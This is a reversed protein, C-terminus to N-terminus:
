DRFLDWCIFQCVFLLLVDVSLKRKQYKYELQGFKCKYQTGSLHSCSPSGFHLHCSNQLLAFFNCKNGTLILR